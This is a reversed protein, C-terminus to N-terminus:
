PTDGTDYQGTEQGIRAMEQMAMERVDRRLREVEALLNRIVSADSQIRHYLSKAPVGTITACVYRGEGDRETISLAPEGDPGGNDYGLSPRGAELERKIERLREDDM